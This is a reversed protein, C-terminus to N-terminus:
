GRRGTRSSERAGQEEEGDASEGEPGESAPAVGPHEPGEVDPRAQDSRHGAQLEPEHEPFDVGDGFGLAEVAEDSRSAEDPAGRACAERAQDARVDVGGMEEDRRRRDEGGGPEARGKQQITRATRSDRPVARRAQGERPGELHELALGVDLAQRQQDHGGVHGERQHVVDELALHGSM